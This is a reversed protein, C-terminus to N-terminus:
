IILCYELANKTRRPFIKLVELLHDAGFLEEIMIGSFALDEGWIKSILEADHKGEVWIRSPLAVRPEHKVHLSGSATM